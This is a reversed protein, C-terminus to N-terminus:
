RTLIRSSFAPDDALTLIRPEDDKKIDKLHVGTDKVWGAADLKFARMDDKGANIVVTGGNDHLMTWYHEVIPEVMMFPPLAVIGEAMLLGVTDCNLVPGIFGTVINCNAPIKESLIKYKEEITM